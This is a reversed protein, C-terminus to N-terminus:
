CSVRSFSFVRFVKCVRSLSISFKRWNSRFIGPVPTDFCFPTRLDGWAVGFSFIGVSLGWEIDDVAGGVVVVTAAVEDDVRELKAGFLGDTLGLLNKAGGAM